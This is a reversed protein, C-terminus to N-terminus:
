GQFLGILIIDGIQKDSFAFWWSHLYWVYIHISIHFLVVQIKQWMSRALKWILTKVGDLLMRGHPDLPKVLLVGRHM